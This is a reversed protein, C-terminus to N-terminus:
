VKWFREKSEILSCSDNQMYRSRVRGIIRVWAVDVIEAKPLDRSSSSTTESTYMETTGVRLYNGIVKVQAAMAM